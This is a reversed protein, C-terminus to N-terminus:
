CGGKAADPYLDGIYYVRDVRKQIVVDGRQYGNIIDRAAELCVTAPYEEGKKLCVDSMKSYLQACKEVINKYIDYGEKYNFYEDYHMPRSPYPAILMKFFSYGNYEKKYRDYEEDASKYEIYTEFDKKFDELNKDGRKAMYEDCLANIAQNYCAQALEFKNQKLHLDGLVQHPRYDSYPLNLAEKRMKCREIADNLYDQALNYSAAGVTSLGNIAEARAILNDIKKSQVQVNEEIDDGYYEKIKDKLKIDRAIANFTSFCSGWMSLVSPKGSGECDCKPFIINGSSNTDFFLKLSKDTFRGQLDIKRKKIEERTFVEEVPYLKDACKQTSKGEELCEKLQNLEQKTAITSTYSKGVFKSINEIKENAPFEDFPYEVTKEDTYSYGLIKNRERIPTFNYVGREGDTICADYAAFMYDQPGKAGKVGVINADSLALLNFDYWNKDKIENHMKTIVGDKDIGKSIFYYLEPKYGRQQAMWKLTQDQPHGSPVYVKAGKEILKNIEQIVGWTYELHQGATDMNRTYHSYAYPYEYIKKLFELLGKKHSKINQPTLSVDKNMLSNYQDEINLLPVTALAPIAVFTDKLDDKQNLEKLRAELSKLDKITDHQRLTDVERIETEMDKSIANAFHEMNTAHTGGDVIYVPYGLFPLANQQALSNTRLDMFNKNFIKKQHRVQNVCNVRM